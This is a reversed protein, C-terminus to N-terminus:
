GDPGGCGLLDRVVCKWVVSHLEQVIKGRKWGRSQVVGPYGIEPVAFALFVRRPLSHPLIHRGIDM